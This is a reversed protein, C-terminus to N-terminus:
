ARLPLSYKTTKSTRQGIFHDDHSASGNMGGIGIRRPSKCRRTIRVVSEASYAHKGLAMDSLCLLEQARWALGIGSTM